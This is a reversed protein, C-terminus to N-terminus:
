AEGVQALVAQIVEKSIRFDSAHLRAFCDKASAILGQQKAFGIVAATGAVQIGLEKATARGAREDMLVLCHGAPLSLAISLCDMEGADLDGLSKRPKPITAPWVRIHKLSLAQSIELEGRAQVGPLVEQQVSAPIWVEGFLHPLWDLGNVIALGILPSADSLVFRAM